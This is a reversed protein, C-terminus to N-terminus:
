SPMSTIPFLILESDISDHQMTGIFRFELNCVQAVQSTDISIKMTGIGIIVSFSVM